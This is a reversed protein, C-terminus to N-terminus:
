QRKMDSVKYWNGQYVVQWENGKYRMLNDRTGLFYQGTKSDIRVSRQQFSDLQNKM